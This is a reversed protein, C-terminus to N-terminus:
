IECNSGCCIRFDVTGRECEKNTQDICVSLHLYLLNAAIIERQSLWSGYPISHVLATNMEEHLERCLLWYTYKWSKIFESFYLYAPPPPSDSMYLRYRKHAALVQTM